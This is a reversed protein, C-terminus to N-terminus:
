DRYFRLPLAPGSPALPDRELRLGLAAGWGGQFYELRLRHLGRALRRVGRVEQVPHTGDNDAIMEGDLFLRSGDDSGLVLHYVGAEPIELYGTFIVAYNEARVGDLGALGLGETTGKGAPRLRPLDALTGPEGHLVEYRLGPSKGDRPAVAALPYPALKLPADRRGGPRDLTLTLTEGSKRGVLALLWDIGDRLPKGDMAAVVDGAVLGAREGPGGPAVGVVRAGSALPDVALGTWFDGREEPAALTRFPARVRDIPIAYNINEEGFVKRTVVGIIEGEANVLPGGSNGRNVATDFQIFRDQADNRALAMALADAGFVLSPSSIIGASFVIGRGGPNGGALIPESAMLDHSRGLPIAAAPRDAAVRLLALDKEPLRGVLEYEKPPMGRLLVLGRYGKVVHDNTLIFGDGIVAGSGYESLAGAANRSYIAVIGPEVRRIIEVARTRRPSPAEGQGYGAPAFVMMLAAIAALGRASTRWRDTRGPLPRGSQHM